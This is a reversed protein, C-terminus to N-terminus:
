SFGIHDALRLRNNGGKYCTFEKLVLWATFNELIYAWKLVQTDGRSIYSMKKNLKCCISFSVLLNVM